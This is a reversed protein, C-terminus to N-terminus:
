SKSAESVSNKTSFIGTWTLHYIRGSVKDFDIQQVSPNLLLMFFMKKFKIESWYGKWILMKRILLFSVDQPPAKIVGDCM